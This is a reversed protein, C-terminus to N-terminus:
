LKDNKCRRTYMILDITACVAGGIGYCLMDRWDFVSGLLVAMFSGEGFLSALGTLQVLEVCLALVLVAASLWRLRIPFVIRVGCYVTIVALVDGIYPRVFDDHVFLAICIEVALLLVFAAAWILRPRRM